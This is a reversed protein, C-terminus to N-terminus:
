AALFSFLDTNRLLGCIQPLPIICCVSLLAEKTMQVAFSFVVHRFTIAQGMICVVYLM